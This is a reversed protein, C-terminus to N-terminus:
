GKLNVIRAFRDPQAFERHPRQFMGQEYPWLHQYTVLLEGKKHPQNGKWASRQQRLTTVYDLRYIGGNKHRYLEGPQNLAEQETFRSKM